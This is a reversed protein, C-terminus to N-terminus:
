TIEKIVSNYSFNLHNPFKNTKSMLSLYRNENTTYVYKFNCSEPNLKSIILKILEEHNILDKSGHHFIGSLNRSIIYHLQKSLYEESNINIILNPFIEISNSNNLDKKLEHLRKSKKSFIIASRNISWNKNDMRLLKNEIHVNFRGYVSTSFTKDNEFSPYNVFSDFVNSSSIFMLKSKYKECHSIIKEFFIVQSNFNGKLGTIIINPKLNELITSPDQDVSYYLYRKNSSFKSNSYYTAYSDYFPKLEKFIAVGISSSGGFILIRKM